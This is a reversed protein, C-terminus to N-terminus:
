YNDVAKKYEKYNAKVIAYDDDNILARYESTPDIGMAKMTLATTFDRKMSQNYEIVASCYYIMVYKEYANPGSIGYKMLIADIGLDITEYDVDDYEAGYDEFADMIKDYNKILAKMDKDTLGTSEAEGHFESSDNGLSLSSVGRGEKPGVDEGGTLCSSFMILVALAMLIAIIKKM